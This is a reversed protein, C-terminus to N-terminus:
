INRDSNWMSILIYTLYGVTGMTIMSPGAVFMLEGLIFYFIKGIDTCIYFGGMVVDRFWQQTCLATYMSIFYRMHWVRERFTSM